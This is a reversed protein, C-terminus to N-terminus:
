KLVPEPPCGDDRTTPVSVEAHVEVCPGIVHPGVPNKMASNIL